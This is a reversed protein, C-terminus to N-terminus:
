KNHEKLIQENFGGEKPNPQGKGKTILSRLSQKIYNGWADSCIEFCEYDPVLGVHTFQVKTKGDERSIDFVLKTGTWESKDKTFQFYNEQILYVVKKGPVAEVLKIKARHVDKYRYNFVENIKDTKGEIDESWWGRLNTISKFVQAATQDVTLSATYDKQTMASPKLNKIQNGQSRLSNLSLTALILYIITKKMKKISSKKNRFLQKM